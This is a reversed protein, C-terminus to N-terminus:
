PGRASRSLPDLMRSLALVPLLMVVLGIATHAPGRAAAPGLTVALGSLALVRVLNTLWALAVVLALLALPSRRRSGPLAQLIAAPLLCAQLTGMGSCADDVSIAIGDLHVLSGHAAARHGIGGLVAAVISAASTRFPWALDALDTALWPFGAAVLVYLSAPRPHATAVGALALTIRLLCTWAAALLFTSELVSGAVLLASTAAAFSLSPPRAESESWPRGLLAFGPFVLVLLPAEPAVLRWTVDRTWTYVALVALGGLGAALRVHPKM